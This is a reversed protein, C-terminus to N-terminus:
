SVARKKIAALGAVTLVGNLLLLEYGFEYGFINKLLYVLVFTIVPSLAAVFPVLRDNVKIKTFIGFAFLGLLPGYLYSVITYIADIVSDCNIYRFCFMLAAFIVTVSAHIFFRERKSIDRKDLIDVAFSTTMSILASDASSFAAALVGIVFCVAVFGSTHAAFFPLIQDSMAPLVVGEQGAYLLLLLGLVLLLLNVPVFGFGGIIMNKQADRLNRCTLNKQMVDQDLGTMVIVVFAGSLLQKFFNARSDIKDFVFIDSRSDSWVMSMIEGFSMDLRMIVDASLAVVSVLMCFTQFVDTWVVSGLGSRFTYLFMIAVSFAATMEFSVGMSDLVCSQLVLVAVYLRVSASVMKFLLFSAAATKHTVKGFRLRLYGYISTLNLKYYLPLLVAAVFLYGLIFGFVMQMYSFNASRVMGPVSVVSVGSMSAGIMGFAVVYWRSNRGASFFADSNTRGGNGAWFSLVFVVSVYIFIVALSMVNLFLSRKM